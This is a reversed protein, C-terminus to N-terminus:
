IVTRLAVLTERLPVPLADEGSVELVALERRAPYNRRLEDFEAGGVFTQRLRRDDERLDYVALVAQRILALEDLEGSVRITPAPALFDPEVEPLAVEWHEALAQAVQTVGLWKGDQSYGAIHPTAIDCQALLEASIDPEGEWVDLVLKMDPRRVLLEQLVRDPLVEGRGANLLVAGEPLEQLAKANLMGATPHPGKHTLPTHLCVLDSNLVAELSDSIPCQEIDLLPDYARCAIGLAALRRHLRSGVNGYGVIGVQGDGRLTELLGPLACIASFVYDVVSNANSGPASCWRIGAGDLWRTDLHDTGITTSGVFQVQSGRLLQADVRTVSRVLLADAANVEASTLERGRFRRVEGLASLLEEAAPINEDVLILSM